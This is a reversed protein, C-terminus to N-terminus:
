TLRNRISRISETPAQVVGNIEILKIKLKGNGCIVEVSKDKMNIKSIQGAIFLYNENDQILEAEWIKVEVGEYKCFAGYYPHNSANILRLIDISDKTWDIKGDEPKRPYCRLIDKPDKSQKSLIYNPDKELKKLSNLFMYPVRDSIWNLTDTVKTDINLDYYEREIIDGSDIEGGVMKHICLGMKNEGNLIAWAQCANGRYRPLDGGHANLIGLRFSSIVEKSIVNVYNMSVGIDLKLSLIKKIILDNNIQSTNIFECNFRSSLIKFDSITKKYEPAGKSTILLQIDYGNEELILCTKYLIETRGIIGIKM